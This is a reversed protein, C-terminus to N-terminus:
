LGGRVKKRMGLGAGEKKAPPQSPATIPLAPPSPINIKLGARETWRKLVNLPRFPEVAKMVNQVRSRFEEVLGGSQPHAYYGMRTFIPIRKRLEQLRSQIRTRAETLRRQLETALSM